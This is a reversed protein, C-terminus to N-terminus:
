RITVTSTANGPGLNVVRIFYQDNAPAVFQLYCDKSIADDVLDFEPDGARSIYLDVDPNKFVGQPTNVLVEVRQGAQFNFARTDDQFPRLTVTYNVPQVGGAAGGGQAQAGGPANVAPNGRGTRVLLVIIIVLVLIGGGVSSGIIAAMAGPSYEKKRKKKRRPRREDADEDLREERRRPADAEARPFLEDIQSAPKWDAMGERWVLDGRRLKGSAALQRLIEWTVPGKQQNDLSYFWEAM